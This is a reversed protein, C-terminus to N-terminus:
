LPSHHHQIQSRRICPLLTKMDAFNPATQEVQGLAIDQSSIFFVGTNEGGNCWTSVARFSLIHPIPNFISGGGASHQVKRSREWYRYGGSWGGSRSFDTAQVETEQFMFRNLVLARNQSIKILFAGERTNTIPTQYPLWCYWWQNKNTEKQLNYM